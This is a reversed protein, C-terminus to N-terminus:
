GSFRYRNTIPLKLDLGLTKSSIKIAPPSQRRKFESRCFMDIVRNVAKKPLGSEILQAATQEEEIFGTLIKDLISYDPLTDSDKQGPRLEASPPRKLVSPPIIEVCGTRNIHEALKYVITKPVDGIVALAGATDGYLTAYGTAAESRNGGALVLAGYQNSLSMLIVSRIRAQLNEFAVGSNTWEPAAQLIEDFQRLLPEILISLFKIGLNKAVREADNITQASNFKSPMTVGTVNKAGLAAAAIAAVVSSDVGGSLGVLVKKFDNKLCYDRTGLVLAQYIEDIVDVPQPRSPQLLNVVISNKRPVIDAIFLDEDFAKATGAVAGAQDVFMSRGDFVIGDQSGALNCYAVPCSFKKACNALVQRRQLIKGTYFPSAAINVLLHFRGASKLLKSLCDPRWIDRCVTIAIKFGRVNVVLPKKGAKFYYQEDFIASTPLQIKRCVAQMRGKQLVAASNFVDAKDLEPFGIITTIKSCDSALSAVKKQADELFDCRDLLGTPPYGCLALEPFILLEVGEDLAQEYMLRMRDANGSLDGLCANFQGLGVRM